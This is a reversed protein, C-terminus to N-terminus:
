SPEAELQHEPLASVYVFLMGCVNVIFGWFRISRLGRSELETCNVPRTVFESIWRHVPEIQLAGATGGLLV